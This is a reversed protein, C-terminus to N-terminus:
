PEPKLHADIGEQAWPAQTSQAENATLASGGAYLFTFTLKKGNKTMVGNHMKWGHAGLLAKGKIINYPYLNKLDKDCVSATAPVPSLTPKVAGHFIAKSLGPQDIGDKIAQRIYLPNFLRGM